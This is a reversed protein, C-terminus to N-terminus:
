FVQGSQQDVHIITFKEKDLLEVMGNTGPSPNHIDFHFAMASCDWGASRMTCLIQLMAENRRHGGKRLQMSLYPVRIEILGEIGDPKQHPKRGPDYEGQIVTSVLRDAGKAGGHMVYHPTILRQLESRVLGIDDFERSGTTLLM